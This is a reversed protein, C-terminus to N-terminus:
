GVTTSFCLYHPQARTCLPSRAVRSRVIGLQPNAAYKQPVNCDGTVAKYQALENLRQYWIALANRSRDTTAAVIEEVFPQIRESSSPTGSSPSVKPRKSPKAHKKTVGRRQSTFRRRKKKPNHSLSSGKNNEEVVVEAGLTEDDPCSEEVSVSMDTTPDYDATDLFDLMCVADNCDFDQSGTDKSFKKAAEGLTAPLVVHVSSPASSESPPPLEKTMVTTNSAAPAQEKDLNLLAEPVTASEPITPWGDSPTASPNSVTTNETGTGVIRAAPEEKVRSTHQVTTSDIAATEKDEEQSLDRCLLDEELHYSKNTKKKEPDGIVDQDLKKEDSKACQRGRLDM